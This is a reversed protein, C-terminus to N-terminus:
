WPTGGPSLPRGASVLMATVTVVPRVDGGSPPAAGGVPSGISESTRSARKAVRLLWPSPTM